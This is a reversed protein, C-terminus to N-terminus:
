APLKKGAPSFNNAHVVEESSMFPIDLIQECVQIKLEYPVIDDIRNKKFNVLDVIEGTRGTRHM